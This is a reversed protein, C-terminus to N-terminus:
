QYGILSDEGPIGASEIFTGLKLAFNADDHRPVDDAGIVELPIISHTVAVGGFQSASRSIRRRTSIPRFAFFHFPSSACFGPKTSLLDAALGGPLIPSFATGISGEFISREFCHNM